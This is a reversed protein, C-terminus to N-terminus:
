ENIVDEIVKKATITEEQNSKNMFFCIDIIINGDKDEVSRVPHYRELWWLDDVDFGDL